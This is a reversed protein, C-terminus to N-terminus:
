LHLPHGTVGRQGIYRCQRLMHNESDSILTDLGGQIFQDSQTDLSTSNKRRQNKLIVLGRRKLLTDLGFSFLSTQQYGTGIAHAKVIHAVPHQSATKIGSLM